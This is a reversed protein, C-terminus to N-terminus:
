DPTSLNSQFVVWLVEASHGNKNYGWACYRSNKQYVQSQFNATFPSPHLPGAIGLYLLPSSQNKMQGPPSPWGKLSITLYPLMLTSWLIEPSWPSDTWGQALLMWISSCAVTRCAEGDSGHSITRSLTPLTPWSHNDLTGISLKKPTQVVDNVPDACGCVDGIELDVQARKDHM